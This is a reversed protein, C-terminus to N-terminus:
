VYILMTSLRHLYQLMGGPAMDAISRGLEEESLTESRQTVQLHQLMKAMRDWRGRDPASVSARYALASQLVSACLAKEHKIEYDDKQPLRPPFFAHHAIYESRQKAM